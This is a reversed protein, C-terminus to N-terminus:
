TYIRAELFRECEELLARSKPFTLRERANKYPLWEYNVHERSLVISKDQVLQGAFFYVTKQIREGKETFFYTVSELFGDVIEVSIGAEEKLERLAALVNSEGPEIKGKAFDWYGRSSQLLLYVREKSPLVRFVLVGASFIQKM